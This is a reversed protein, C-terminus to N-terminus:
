EAPRLDVIRLRLEPRSRFVSKELNALLDVRTGPTLPWDGFDGPGAFFKIAERTEGMEPALDLGLHARERGFQRVRAITLGPLFLVPKPNDLGYPALREIEEYIAWTLDPLEFAADAVLEDAILPLPDLTAHAENLRTELEPLREAALAFGGAMQHGGFDSFFERGGAARMLEVVNVDGASRCSGRVLGQGNKGWLFTTRGYKEVVRNATLGLVGLSWDPEGVVLVPGSARVSWDHTAAVAELIVAVLDRREQNKNMLHEALNEAESEDSTVALRYAESGHSMRSASNLRPGIMFGIDDESVASAPLRLARLLARLGPRRTRRLVKLGFHVLARNEGVLPVMDAVTAVAVLDLLWKEWGKKMDLNLRSMSLAQALKFAVGAGCLMKEPYEDGERKPNIAALAPPLAPPPLHHDTIIVELGLENALKVEEYNSIGCDVTVLVKVGQDALQRVVAVSLGYAEEHRDPIYVIPERGGLQRWAEVLVATALTGDADYDGFVAIFEQQALARALRAVAVSMDTLLFPDHLDREYDPALWSRAATGDTVGRAFLLRRALPSEDPLFDSPPDPRVRWRKM